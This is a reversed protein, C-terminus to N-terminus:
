DEPSLRFKDIRYRLTDRSIGLQRAAQTINWGTNRLAALLMNREVDELRGGEQAPLPQAVALPMAEAM